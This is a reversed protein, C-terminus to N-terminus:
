VKERLVIELVGGKVARSAVDYADLDVPGPGVMQRCINGTTTNFKISVGKPAGMAALTAANVGLAQLIPVSEEATLGINLSPKRWPYSRKHKIKMLNSPFPAAM